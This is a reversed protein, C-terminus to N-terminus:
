EIIPLSQIKSIWIQQNPEVSRPLPEYMKLVLTQEEHIKKNVIQPVFEGDENEVDQVVDKYKAFTEYDTCWTAILKNDGDGFHMLHTLFKSNDQALASSDFQHCIAESIDRVETAM